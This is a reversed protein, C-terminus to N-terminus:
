NAQKVRKTPWEPEEKVEQVLCDLSGDSLLVNVQDGQRVAARERILRGAADRCVAYGRQLIALPSLAQLKGSSLMLRSKAAQGAGQAQLTLRAQLQRLAERRTLLGRRLLEELRGAGDAEVEQGLRQRYRQLALLIREQRMRLQQQLEALQPVALEAAASPTPARLDAALDAITFDTEHGVASIVPIRSRYIARAVEETNFPWLEELSGGGRGVILLDIDKRRNLRGIAAVIEAPAERGQVAAPALVLPLGPYRRRMVTFLDHWAAGNSSTVVGVKRPLFPLPRKHEAAFLGEAELKEKLQLFAAYLAGVGDPLLEQVYLQYAGDRQYVSVYGRALVRLGNAPPFTVRDARSRFMVCKIASREDKLTFYLHGSSHHKFNSLEGRLWIDSLLPDAELLEQLYATVEGVQYIRRMAM